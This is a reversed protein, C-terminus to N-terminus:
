VHLLAGVYGSGSGVDLVTQGPQADLLALMESGRPQSITQGAVIAFPADAYTALVGVISSHM